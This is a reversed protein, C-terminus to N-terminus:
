ASRHEPQQNHSTDHRRLEDLDVGEFRFCVEPHTARLCELTKEINGLPVRDIHNLGFIAMVKTGRGLVSQVEIKGGAQEAAHALLPLGLGLRRGPKTTFFPDLSRRANEESMGEGDDTVELVLQDDKKSQTLRIFVNKAGARLANEAIDLIHLSLDEM